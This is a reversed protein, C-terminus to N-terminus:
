VGCLVYLASATYVYVSTDFVGDGNPSFAIYERNIIDEEGSFENQGLEGSENEPLDSYLFTGQLAELGPIYLSSGGEDYVTTDFIPASRWDGRFGTFPISLVPTGASSALTVFGDIYFGNTFVKENELLEDSNLTVGM